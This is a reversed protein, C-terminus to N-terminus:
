VGYFDWKQRILGSKRLYARESAVKIYLKTATKSVSPIESLAELAKFTHEFIIPM